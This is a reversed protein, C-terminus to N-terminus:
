CKARGDDGETVCNPFLAAIQEINKSVLNPSAMDLKGSTDSNTM